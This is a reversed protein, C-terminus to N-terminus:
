HFLFYDKCLHKVTNCLYCVLHNLVIYIKQYKGKPQARRTSVHNKLQLPWCAEFPIESPNQPKRGRKLLTWWRPSASSTSCMRFIVIYFLLLFLFYSLVYLLSIFDKKFM